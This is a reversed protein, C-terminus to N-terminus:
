KKGKLNNLQQIDIKNMVKIRGEGEAWSSWEYFMRKFSMNLIESEDYGLKKFILFLNQRWDTGSPLSTEAEGEESYLPMEMHWKVYKEFLNLKTLLNWNKDNNMNKILNTTFEDAYSKYLEDNDLLQLNEEYTLGCVMLAHFFYYLSDQVSVKSAELNVIPNKHHELMILHGLCFPKLELGCIIFKRPIIANSYFYSTFDQEKKAM